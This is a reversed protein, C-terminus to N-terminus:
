TGSGARGRAVLVPTMKVGHPTAVVNPEVSGVTAPGSFTVDITAGGTPPVTFTGLPVKIGAKSAGPIDLPYATSARYTVAAAGGGATVDHAFTITAGDTFLLRLNRYEGAPLTGRALQVASAAQSPLALLDLKGGAVVPLSVWGGEADENAGAPLAQVQTITVDISKVDGLSVRGGATTLGAAVDAVAARSAAGAGSEQRLLVVTERSSASSATSADSRGGPDTATGCAGTMTALALALAAMRSTFM